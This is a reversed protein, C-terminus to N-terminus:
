PRNTLEADAVISRALRKSAEDILHGDLAVAGDGAALVRAAWARREASPRYAAHIAELQAPHIAAKATFGLGRASAVAAGFRETPEIEAEPGDVIHSVGAAVAAFVIRSRAWELPRPDDYSMLGLDTSLDGPGLMVGAVGAELLQPLSEVGRASEVLLWVGMGRVAAAVTEVDARTEAKALLVGAFWAPVLAVDALRQERGARIRCLAPPGVPDRGAYARLNREAAPRDSAPVADELDVIVAHAGTEGGLAKALPRERHAPVYLFSRM